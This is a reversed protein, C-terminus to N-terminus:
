GHAVTKSDNDSKQNCHTICLCGSTWGERWVTIGVNGKKHGQDVYRHAEIIKEIPYQRDIVPKITGEEVLKKLFNIQEANSKYSGGVLKKKSGILGLRIRLATTPTTVAHIYTGTPNLVKITRYVPTKGVTDFIFDYHRGTKTFDTTTYDIVHDAGLSQVMELNATSCVGTVVAGFYKALQVAYTGVSGSAGYILVRDGPKINGKRLFQLATIGGFTIVAAEEHSLNGPKIALCRNEDVCCYDANAGMKHGTFAFVRDGKKFQKVDRGVLEIEGSLEGGPISNKPKTIGLALRAPIWFSLPVKFGRVRSDAATVSTAYIRILVENDKPRPKEVEKIQLVEPPGYKACVVAKM